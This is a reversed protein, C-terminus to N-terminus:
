ENEHFRTISHTYEESPINHDNVTNTQWTQGERRLIEELTTSDSFNLNKM